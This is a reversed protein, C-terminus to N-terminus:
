PADRDRDELAVAEATRKRFRSVSLEFDDFSDSEIHQNQGDQAQADICCAKAQGEKELIAPIVVRDLTAM